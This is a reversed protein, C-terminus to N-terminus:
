PERRDPGTARDAVARPGRIGLLRRTIDLLDRKHAELQEDSLLDYPLEGVFTPLAAVYFLTAGAVTSLFHLPDSRLPRFVGSREGEEFIMELLSLFPRAQAQIEARIKADPNVSERVALRAATPHRGMYDVFTCVAAELREPLTRAATLASRLEALLGGFLEDLVARYLLRKDKFHYLVASRGIGVDEGVDELRTENFGREAFRHAAAKLIQSRTEEAKRHRRESATM